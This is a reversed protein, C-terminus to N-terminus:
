LITFLMIYDLAVSDAPILPLMLLHVVEYKIEKQTKLVNFPNCHIAVSQIANSNIPITKNALYIVDPLYISNLLKM